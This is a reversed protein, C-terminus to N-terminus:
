VKLLSPKLSLPTQDIETAVTSMSPWAEEDLAETWNWNTNSLITGSNFTSPIKFLPLYLAALCWNLTKTLSLM